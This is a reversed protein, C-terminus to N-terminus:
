SNDRHDDGDLVRKIKDIMDPIVKERRIRKGALRRTTPEPEFDPRRKCKRAAEFAIPLTIDSRYLDAIDLAFAHGSSEHIFGLQPIAGVSAVAIDAAAYMAVAAHNITKNILDNDDPNSRDFRRGNWEVGYQHALNNYVEKVRTGEIGRLANLDRQPLLEGLRIAYMKRAIAIRTDEDNWLRAHQRALKSRDPGKPMIEAYIRVGGSGVALLGTGHRALLRLADHTVAGGPGLLICSVQQFPIDYAGADLQPSGATTFVVTGDEVALRGRELWMLGHRDTHPVRATQLGLRGKLPM